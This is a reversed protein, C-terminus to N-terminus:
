RVVDPGMQCANAIPVPNAYITKFGQQFVSHQSKAPSVEEKGAYRSLHKKLVPDVIFCPRLKHIHKREERDNTIDSAAHIKRTAIKPLETQIDFAFCGLNKVNVSRGARLNNDLYTILARWIIQM